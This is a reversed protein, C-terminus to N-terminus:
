FQLQVTDLGPTKDLLPTTGADDLPLEKDAICLIRCNQYHVIKNRRSSRQQARSARDPCLSRASHDGECRMSQEHRSSRYHQGVAGYIAQDDGIGNWRETQRINGGPLLDVNNGCDTQKRLRDVPQM